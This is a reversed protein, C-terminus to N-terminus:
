INVDYRVDQRWENLIHKYIRVFTFLFLASVNLTFPGLGVRARRPRPMKQEIFFGRGKERMVGTQDSVTWSVENVLKELCLFKLSWFYVFLVPVNEKPLRVFPRQKNLQTTDCFLIECKLVDFPM